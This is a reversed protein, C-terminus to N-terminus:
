IKNKRGVALYIISGLIGALVIVLIWIIKDNEGKFNGKIADILTWVWFAFMAIAILVVFLGVGIGVLENQFLLFSM